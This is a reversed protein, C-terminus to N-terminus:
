RGAKSQEARSEGAAPDARERCREAGEGALPSPFPFPLLFVSSATPCAPSGCVCLIFVLTPPGGLTLSAPLRPSFHVLLVSFRHKIFIVRVQSQIESSSHGKKILRLEQTQKKM